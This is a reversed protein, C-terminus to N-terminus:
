KIILITAAVGAGFTFIRELWRGKKPPKYIYSNMGTISMHKNSHKVQVEMKRKQFFKLKGNIDRKLFGGTEVIAITQEDPIDISNVSFSNQKITFNLSFDVSDIKIDKPTKIYNSEYYGIVDKCSKEVSDAFRKRELTDVYAIEFSDLRFKSKTKVLADVQKIRRQESAKLNFIESTMSKLTEKSGTIIVEQKAIVEGLKNKAYTIEQTLSDTIAKKQNEFEKNRCSDITFLAIILGIIVTTGLINKTTLYKRM